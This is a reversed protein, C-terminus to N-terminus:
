AAKEKSKGELIKKTRSVLSEPTGSAIKISRPKMAEPVVRELDITLIGHELHADAVKVYDALQFKRSFNREAIGRHLYQVGEDEEKKNGSVTLAQDHVEIDLEAESFGAVAMTIRYHDEGIAAINYPPFGNGAPAGPRANADMLRALRDFGVSSRYLPAFDFTQM